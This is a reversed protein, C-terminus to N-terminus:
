TETTINSIDIKEGEPIFDNDPETLEVLNHLVSSTFLLDGLDNCEQVKKKLDLIISELEAFESESIDQEEKCFTLYEDAAKMAKKRMTEILM